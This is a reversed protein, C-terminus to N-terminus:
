GRRYPHPGCRQGKRASRRSTSSSESSGSQSPYFTPDHPNSAPSPTDSVSPVTQGAGGNSQNDDEDDTQHGNSTMTHDSQEDEEEEEVEEEAPQEDLTPELDSALHSASLLHDIADPIPNELAISSSDGPLSQTDNAKNNDRQHGDVLSPVDLDLDLEIVDPNLLPASASREPQVPHPNLM